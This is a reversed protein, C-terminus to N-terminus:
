IHHELRMKALFVFLQSLQKKTFLQAFCRMKQRPWDPTRIDNKGFFQFTAVITKKRFNRLISCKKVHGIQLEQASIKM